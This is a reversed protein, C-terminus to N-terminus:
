MKDPIVFDRGEAYNQFGINYSRRVQDGPNCVGSFIENISADGYFVVETNRGEIADVLDQFRVHESASLLGSLKIHEEGGRTRYGYQKRKLYCAEGQWEVKLQGLETGIEVENGTVDGALHMSDTDCYLVSYGYREMQYMIRHLHVRAYATILSAWVVNRHSVHREEDVFTLDGLPRMRKGQALADQREQHNMLKLEISQPKQGFKGYLSNLILKHLKQQYLDYHQRLPYMKKVFWSFPRVERSWVYGQTVEVEAGIEYLRRLEPTTIWAAGSTLYEGTERSVIFPIDNRADMEWRAFWIGLRDLNVDFTKAVKGIPFPMESMIFPYMSNVDLCTVNTYHGPLMCLNLGGHYTEQAHSQVEEDPFYYPKDLTKQYLRLALAGVTGPLHRGITGHEKYLMQWQNMLFDSLEVPDLGIFTSGRFLHNIDYFHVEKEFGDFKMIAGIGRGDAYIYTCKHIRSHHDLFINPIEFNGGGSTYVHYAKEEHGYKQLFTVFYPTTYTQREIGDQIHFYFSDGHQVMTTPNYPAHEKAYILPKIHYMM